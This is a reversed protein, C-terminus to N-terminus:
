AMVLGGDVQIVQGTIYAAADSCLFAAAEAVEAPTGFRGIPILSTAKQRLEESLSTTMGADIFGPALANVTIGRTAVEKATARTLGIMGAKAATYNAQGVNGAIGVVSTVNLIRGWRQRMMPRLVVRTCLYASKLNTTIVADWDEESMRMLLTDRNIGANNVLIDVRGWTQLALEVLAEVDAASTVDAAAIVGDGGADRVAALTAEARERSGHYHCLVNAGTSGLRAAISGGIAGSAGTVLAVRAAGNDGTAMM